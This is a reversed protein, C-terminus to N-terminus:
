KQYTLDKNIEFKNKRSYISWIDGHFSIFSVNEIFRWVLFRQKQYTLDKNIEFKNKGSHISSIDGHFSILSANEVFRWVLFRQKQKLYFNFLVWDAWILLKICDKLMNM